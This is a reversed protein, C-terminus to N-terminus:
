PRTGLDCGLAVCTSGLALTVESASQAGKYGNGFAGQDNSVLKRVGLYVFHGSWYVCQATSLQEAM